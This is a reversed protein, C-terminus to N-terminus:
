QWGWTMYYDGVKVKNVVYGIAILKEVAKMNDKAEVVIVPLNAKITEMAGEIVNSEYGQCDIKIADVDTVHFDDLRRMPIAGDGHVYTDGTNGGNTQMGIFGDKEGLACDHLVIRSAVDSVNKTFCERHEEMPEFAHVKDFQYAMNYSWMGVHAGIDVMTRFRDCLQILALQKTGQYALRGNMGVNHVLMNGFMHEEHDPFWWGVAKKV